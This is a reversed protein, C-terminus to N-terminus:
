EIPLFVDLCVFTTRPSVSWFAALMWALDNIALVRPRFQSSIGLQLLLLLPWTFLEMKIVCSFQSPDIENVRLILLVLFGDLVRTLFQFHWNSRSHGAFNNLAILITPTTSGVFYFVFSAHIRSALSDVLSRIPSDNGVWWPSWIAPFPLLESCCQLKTFLNIGIGWAMFIGAAFDATSFSYVQFSEPTSGSSVWFHLLPSRHLLSTPRLLENRRVSPCIDNSFHQIPPLAGFICLDLQVGFHYQLLRSLTKRLIWQVLIKLM